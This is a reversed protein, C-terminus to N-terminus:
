AVHTPTVSILDVKAPVVVHVQGSVSPELTAAGVYVAEILRSPGAPLQATWTGNAKTVTVAAQSFKGQGNDPATLVRVIQGSIATGNPTGLWGNVTTAKRHSVRKPM